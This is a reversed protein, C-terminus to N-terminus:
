AALPPDDRPSLSRLIALIDGPDAGKLVFHRFGVAKAMLQEAPKKYHGSIAILVPEPVLGAGM